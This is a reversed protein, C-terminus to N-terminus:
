PLGAIKRQAEALRTRDMDGDKWYNVFRRYAERAKATDGAQELITGLFYFSRVYELPFAVHEVGSATVKEFWPKADQPRGAGLLAEALAFWIQVHPSGAGPVGFQRSPLAAQAKQLEVTATSFDRRALAVQGRASAHQRADLSATTASTPTALVALAEDADKARGSAASLVALDLLAGREGPTGRADNLALRAQALAAADQSCARLLRASLRRANASQAGPVKYVGAAREAWTLADNCRGAYAGLRARAMAGGFRRTEDQSSWLADAASAAATWDERLIQVAARSQLTGPDTPDLLEARALLPLADDYRGAVVLINALNRHGAGNEPNRRSFAEATAVGKATDGLILRCAALQAHTSPLTTGRRVLEEYHQAAEQYRELFALGLALNHRCAQHGGDLEVCKRYADLGRELTAPRLSYYFGEIYFRERPTLRDSHKLALQSYKDRLDQHELNSHAVALKAYAMAFSPDVAIAKEFLVAAEAERFRTHLNIGEAYLRYADISTTTVDGLGRDLGGADVAANPATLLATANSVDTRVSEFKTVIRRSLEDIMGFLSATTPGEVRESTVVRGTKADQMRLNIRIADGAKMYSGVIVHDVGTREAVQSVVEPSLVRDDARRLEALVGYLRDTSVVELNPSQSLDTVVMESIGTRLWDLEKDDTTNDFYLVAVSPKSPGESPAATGSSSESPARFVLVGVAVVAVAAAGVMPWLWAPRGPSAVAAQAASAPTPATTSSVGPTVVAATPIAATHPASELRRRAARLDVVIDRMGQYRDAPDKALCKDVVRQIDASADASVAPGLAPLPPAPAHLIASATEIGSKGEFPPRGALMEHLMIGFSFIDTRYDVKDGRAQEPSMYTMTGMVVGGVTDQITVHEGTASAAPEILKAIGFDIVKVHGEDSIMVNAPKLDRHAIHKEHARALGSAIETAVELARAVTLRQRALLESMKEGHILEMAIFTRGDAENVDYIVAINPHEVASAAQAEKVFRRRRDEDHMLEDPLVKLAVDRNLRTDTARYVVGMGGRSLEEGVHYQALTRGTLEM